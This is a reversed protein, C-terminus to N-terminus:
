ASKALIREGREELIKEATAKILDIPDLGRAKVDPLLDMLLDGYQRVLAPLESGAAEKLEKLKQENYRLKLTGGMDRNESGQRRKRRAKEAADLEATGSAQGQPQTM